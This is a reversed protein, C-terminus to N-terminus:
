RSLFFLLFSSFFSSFSSTSLFSSYCHFFFSSSSSSLLLLLLLFSPLLLPAPFFFFFPFSFIFFIFFIFFFSIKFFFNWFFFKQPSPLKMQFWIEGHPCCWHIVHYEHTHTHPPLNKRLDQSETCTLSGLGAPVWLGWSGPVWTSSPPSHCAGSCPHPAMAVPLPGERKEPLFMIMILIQGSEAFPFQFRFKVFTM